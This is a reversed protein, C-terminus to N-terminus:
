NSVISATDGLSGSMPIPALAPSSQFGPNSGSSSVGMHYFTFNPPSSNVTASSMINGTSSQLHSLFQSPQPQHIQQQQPVQQSLFMYDRALMMAIDNKARGGASYSSYSGVMTRVIDEEEPTKTPRLLMLRLSMFSPLYSALPSSPDSPMYEGLLSIVEDIRSDRGGGSLSQTGEDENQVGTVSASVTSAVANDNAVEMPDIEGIDVVLKWKPSPM